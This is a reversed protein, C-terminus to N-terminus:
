MRRRRGLWRRCLRAGRYSELIKLEVKLGGGEREKEGKRGREGDRM